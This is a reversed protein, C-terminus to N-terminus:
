GTCMRIPILKVQLNPAPLVQSTRSKEKKDIFPRGGLAMYISKLNWDIL